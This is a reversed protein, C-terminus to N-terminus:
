DPRQREIVRYTVWVFWLVGLDPPVGTLLYWWLNGSLFATDMGFVQNLVRVGFVLVWPWALSAVFVIVVLLLFPPKTREVRVRRVFPPRRSLNYGIGLKYGAYLWVLKWASALLGVIYTLLLVLLVLANLAEDTM